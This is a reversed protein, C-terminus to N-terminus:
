LSAKILQVQKRLEGQRVEVFYVGPRYVAGLQIAGSPAVNRREELVRGVADVVRITVPVRSRSTLLLTFAHSSPNPLAKVALTEATSVDILGKAPVSQDRVRTTMTTPAGNRIIIRGSNDMVVAGVAGSLQVDFYEDPEDLKDTLIAVSITGERSGAPISLTGRAARYDKSGATGDVTQFNVKVTSTSPSSLAVTLRATGQAEFVMIDNITISPLACGEDMTGNCNDDIGNGCIEAAGPNVKANRDNCDGGKAVYGNRPSCSQITASNDGWGDGDSDRYYTTMVGEDVRGDCNNDKGDCREPAGPYITNDGNNCDTNNTIYGAPANCAALSVKADGFGDGDKDRYFITTGGEDVAGDCDDDL